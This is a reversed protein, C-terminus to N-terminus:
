RYKRNRLTTMDCSWWTFSLPWQIKRHEKHCYSYRKDPSHYKSNVVAIQPMRPQSFCSHWTYPTISVVFTTSAFAKYPIQAPCTLRCTFHVNTSATYLSCLALRILSIPTQVSLTSSAQCIKTELNLKMLNGQRILMNLPNAVGRYSM